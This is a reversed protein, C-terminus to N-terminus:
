TKFNLVNCTYPNKYILKTKQTDQLFAMLPTAPTISQNITFTGDPRYIASRGDTAIMLVTNDDLVCFQHCFDTLEVPMYIDDSAVPVLADNQLDFARIIRCDAGGVVMSLNNNVPENAGGSVYRRQIVTIYSTGNINSPYSIQGQIPINGSNQKKSHYTYDGTDGNIRLYGGNASVGYRHLIIEDNYLVNNLTATFNHAIGGGGSSNLTNVSVSFVSNSYSYPGTVGSVNPTVDIQEDPANFEIYNYGVDSVTRTKNNKANNVGSIDVSDGINCLVSFDIPDGSTVTYKIKQTAGNYETSISSSTSLINSTVRGANKNIFIRGDKRTFISCDLPFPSVSVDSITVSDDINIHARQIKSNTSFIIDDDSLFGGGNNLNIGTIDYKKKKAIDYISTAHSYQHSSRYSFGKITHSPVTSGSWLGFSDNDISIGGTNIYDQIIDKIEEKKIPLAKKATQTIEKIETAGDAVRVQAIEIYNDAPLASVVEIKAINDKNYNPEVSPDVSLIVYDIRDAGSSNPSIAFVEDADNKIRIKFKKLFREIEIYAVGSSVSINLGSLATTNYGNDGVVGNDTLLDTAFGWFDEENIRPKATNALNTSIIGTSVM